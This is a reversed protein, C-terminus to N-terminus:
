ADCNVETPVTGSLLAYLLAEARPVDEEYRVLVRISGVSFSGDEEAYVSAIVGTEGGSLTVGASELLASLREELLYEATQATYAQTEASLPSVEQVSDIEPLKIRLAGRLLSVLLLLVALGHVLRGSNEPFLRAVLEAGLLFLSASFLLSVFERM